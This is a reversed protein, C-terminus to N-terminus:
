APSYVGVNTYGADGLHLAHLKSMVGKDCYLLYYRSPDLGAFQRNLSYFPIHLVERGEVALPSQEAETPHRVDIIVAGPEAVSPQVLGLALRDQSHFTLDMIPETVAADVAQDVLAWDLNAEAAEVDARKCHANPKRSIVGCYEPMRESFAATGIDRAQQVISSKDTVILPRIILRDTVADILSLNPLTQSSVQAIAEGTVMAPLQRSEALRDAVRMMMRKLVVGMYRDEVQTLIAEIVPEFPVTIFDVKHSSGYRKWLYYVAEKVGNEHAAGGLNFFLFHNKVGRRMMQFAAVMSDFGGSVLTLVSEQTGIPFGGLGPRQQEVIHFRNRKIELRINIDPQTLQVGAARTRQRLGGGIYRELDMSSFHHEGTRKVSVRFTKGALAEGWVALTQELMQEFDSLPHEVVANIHALGPICQLAEAVAENIAEPTDTPTNIIIGDWDSKVTVEPCIRRLVTRMNQGLNKTLLKRVPRTKITIEPFLRAIFKM